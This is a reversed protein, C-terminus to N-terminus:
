RATESEVDCGQHTAGRDLAQDLLDLVQPASDLDFKRAFHYRGSLLAPLDDVGLVRARGDRTLGTDHYRFDEDVFRFREQNLLLTQVLAEDPCVTRRFFEVIARDREVADLVFEACRRRLTTWQYGRYLTFGEPLPLRRRRVGVRPRYVLDVHVLPQVRNLARVVGPWTALWDPADFYAYRYRRDRVRGRVPELAPWFRLFGDCEAAALVAEFRALPQTPYDQASLYVLWDYDLERARLYSVGRFYPALLSLRGREVPGPVLLFDVDSYPSLLAGDVAAGTSDHAILVRCGPSLRKLTAVLRLLQRPERHSQVLYCVRMTRAELGRRLMDRRTHQDSLTLHAEM